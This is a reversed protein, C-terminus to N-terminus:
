YIAWKANLYTELAQRDTTSLTSQFIFAEAIDGNLYSGALPPTGGTTSQYAGLMVIDTSNYDGTVSSATATAAQTGNIWLTSARARTFVCTMIRYASSTDSTKNASVESSFYSFAKLTGSDRLIGYRAATGAARSKGIIAATTGTAIKVVVAMSITGAGFDCVDGCSLFDNSGDFRRVQRGNLASSIISPQNATTAQLAHRNNGSLDPWTGADSGTDSLWLAPSLSLPDFTSVTRRRSAAIIALMDM